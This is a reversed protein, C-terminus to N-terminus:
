PRIAPRRPTSPRWISSARGSILNSGSIRDYKSGPGELPWALEVIEFVNKEIEMRETFYELDSTSGYREYGVRILQVGPM